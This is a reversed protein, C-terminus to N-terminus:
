VSCQFEIDVELQGCTDGLFQSAVWDSSEDVISVVSHSLRCLCGRPDDSNRCWRNAIHVSEIPYSGGLDVEWWPLGGKTHSFSNSNGDVAKSADFKDKLTSSQFALKGQAVNMGSSIVQVEFMQIPKGYLSFIKVKSGSPCGSNITTTTSTPPSQTTVSSSSTSSSSSSTTSTSTTSIPDDCDTSYLDPTLETWSRQILQAGQCSESYVPLNATNAIEEDVILRKVDADCVTEPVNTNITLGGDYTSDESDPTCDCPPNYDGDEQNSSPLCNNMIEQFKGEEWGNFFDTHFHYSRLKGPISNGDSLVYKYSAGRYSPIRIFVQVQPLRRTHTPPCDGNVLGNTTYAVHSKHDYSDEEGNWCTPMATCSPCSILTPLRRCCLEVFLM